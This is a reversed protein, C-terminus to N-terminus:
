PALALRMRMKMRGTDGHEFRAVRDDAIFGAREYFRVAHHNDCLVWLVVERFGRAGLDDLLHRTLARGRGRGLESPDAYLAYLEQAAPTLDDDRVPGTVAFGLLARRMCPGSGDGDPDASRELLWTRVEASSPRLLAERRGLARTSVDLGDLTADPLIGRYAQRWAAVHLAAIAAIMWATVQCV